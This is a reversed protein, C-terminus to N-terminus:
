HYQHFPSPTFIYLVFTSPDINVKKSRMGCFRSRSINWKTGDTVDLSLNGSFVGTGGSQENGADTIELAASSLGGDSRRSEGMGSDGGAFNEDRMDMVPFARSRKAKAVAFEVGKLNRLAEYVESDGLFELGGGFDTTCARNKVSLAIRYHFLAKNSSRFWVPHPLIGSATTVLQSVIIVALKLKTYGLILLVALFECHEKILNLKGKKSRMGCFRSRSINWKTGDTVDLSLNRSFVGTGGSQENGADTIELAASSLGGYESDSYLHWKKLEENSSFNYIFRESPPLMDDLNWSLADKRFYIAPREIERFSVM